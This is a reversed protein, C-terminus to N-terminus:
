EGNLDVVQALKKWLVFDALKGRKRGNIQEVGRLSSGGPWLHDLPM